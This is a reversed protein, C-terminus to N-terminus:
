SQKVALIMDVVCFLRLGIQANVSPAIGDQWSVGRLKFILVIYEMTM